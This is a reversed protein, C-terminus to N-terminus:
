IFSALIRQLINLLLYAVIPSFDLGMNPMVRRLPALIPETMSFLFRYIPNYPNQVLWSAIVRAFIVMNYIDIMRIILLVILVQPSYIM